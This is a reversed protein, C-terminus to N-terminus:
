RRILRLPLTPKPPSPKEGLSVGAFLVSDPQMVSLASAPDKFREAAKAVLEELDAFRGIYNNVCLTTPDNDACKFTIERYDSAPYGKSITMLLRGGMLLSGLFVGDQESTLTSSANSDAAAYLGRTFINRAFDRKLAAFKEALEQRNALCVERDEDMTADAIERSRAYLIQDPDNLYNFFKDIKAQQADSFGMYQPPQKQTM